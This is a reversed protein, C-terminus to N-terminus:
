IFAAQHVLARAYAPGPFPGVMKNDM